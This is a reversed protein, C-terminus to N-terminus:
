VKEHPKQVHVHASLRHGDCTELGFRHAHLDAVTHSRLRAACHLEPAVLEGDLPSGSVIQEDEPRM